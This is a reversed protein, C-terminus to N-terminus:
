CGQVRSATRDGKYHREEGATEDNGDFSVLLRAVHMMLSSSTTSSVWLNRGDFLLPVRTRMSCVRM